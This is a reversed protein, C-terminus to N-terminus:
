QNTSQTREGDERREGDCDAVARLDVIDPREGGCEDIGAPVNAVESRNGGREGRANVTEIKTLSNPNMIQM